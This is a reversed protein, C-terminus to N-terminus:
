RERARSIAHARVRTAWARLCTRVRTRVYSGLCGGEVGVGGGALGVGLGGVGGEWVGRREVGLGGRGDEEEM